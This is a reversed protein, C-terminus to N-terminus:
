KGTLSCVHSIPDPPHLRPGWWACERDTQRNVHTSTMHAYKRKKWGGDDPGWSGTTRWVPFSLSSMYSHIGQFEISVHSSNLYSSITIWMSSMLFSIDFDIMLNILIWFLTNKKWTHETKNMTHKYTHTHSHRSGFLLWLIFTDLLWATRDVKNSCVVKTREQHVQRAVQTATEFLIFLINSQKLQPLHLIERVKPDWHGLFRVM